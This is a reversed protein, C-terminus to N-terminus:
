PPMVFPSGAPLDGRQLRDPYARPRPSNLAQPASPVRLAGRKKGFPRMARDGRRALALPTGPRRWLHLHNIGAPDASHPISLDSM